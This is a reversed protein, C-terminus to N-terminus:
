TFYYDNSPGRGFGPDLPQAYRAPVPDLRLAGRRRGAVVDLPHPARQAFEADTAVVQTPVVRRARCFTM